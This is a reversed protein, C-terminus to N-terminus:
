LIEYQISFVFNIEITKQYAQKKKVFSGYNPAQRSFFLGWFDFFTGIM